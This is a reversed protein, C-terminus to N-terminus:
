FRNFELNSVEPHRISKKRDLQRRKQEFLYMCRWMDKESHPIDIEIGLYMTSNNRETRSTGERLGSTGKRKGSKSWEKNVKTEEGEM